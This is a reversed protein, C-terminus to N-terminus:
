GRLTPTVGREEERWVKGFAIPFMTSVISKRELRSFRETWVQGLAILFMESATSNGTLVGGDLACGHASASWFGAM